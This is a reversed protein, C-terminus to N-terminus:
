VHETIPLVGRVDYNLEALAKTCFAAKVVLIQFVCETPCNAVWDIKLLIYIVLSQDM